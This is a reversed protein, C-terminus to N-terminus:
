WKVKGEMEFASREDFASIGVTTLRNSASEDRAEEGLKGLSEVSGEPLRGDERFGVNVGEELEAEAVCNIDASLETTAPPNSDM